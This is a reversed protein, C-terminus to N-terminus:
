GKEFGCHTTAQESVQAASRVRPMCALHLPQLECLDSPDNVSAGADLLQKVLEAPMVAVSACALRLLCCFMHMDM